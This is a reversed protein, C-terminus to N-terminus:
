GKKKRKAKWAYDADTMLKRYVCQTIPIRQGDDLVFTLGQEIEGCRRGTAAAFAYILEAGLQVRPIMEAETETVRTPFRTIRVDGFLEKDPLTLVVSPGSISADLASHEKGLGMWYGVVAKQLQKPSESALLSLYVLRCCPVTVVGPLYEPPPQPSGVQQDLKQRSRVEKREKKYVERKQHTGGAEIFENTSCDLARMGFHDALRLIAKTAATHDDHVHLLLQSCPEDDGISIEIAFRVREVTIFSENGDGVIRFLKRVASAVAARTGIAPPLYDDPAHEPRAIGEPFKQLLVDWSM